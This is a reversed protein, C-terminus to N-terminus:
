SQTDLGQMIDGRSDQEAEKGKGCSGLTRKFDSFTNEVKWLMGYGHNKKWEV